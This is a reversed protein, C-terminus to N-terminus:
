SDGFGSRRTSRSADVMIGSLSMFNPWLSAPLSTQPLPSRFSVPFSQQNADAFAESFSTLVSLILHSQEHWGSLQCNSLSLGPRETRSKVEVASSLSTWCHLFLCKLVEGLGHVLLEHGFPGNERMCGDNECIIMFCQRLTTQAFRCTSPLLYSPHVRSGGTTMRKIPRRAWSRRLRSGGSVPKGSDQTLRPSKKSRSEHIRTVAPPRFFTYCFLVARSAGSSLLEGVAGWM